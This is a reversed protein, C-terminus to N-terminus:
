RGGQKRHRRRLLRGNFWPLLMMAIGLWSLAVWPAGYRPHDCEFSALTATVLALFFQMYGTWLWSPVPRLDLPLAVRITRRQLCFRFLFVAQALLVALAILYVWGHLAGAQDDRDDLRCAMVILTVLTNFLAWRAVTRRPPLPMVRLRGDLASGARPWLFRFGEGDQGVIGIM